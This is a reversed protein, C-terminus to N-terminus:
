FTGTLMRYKTQLVHWIHAAQGQGPQLTPSFVDFNARELAHLYRECAVASLLVSAAGSPLHKRLARAEDLHGKAVSAVALVVDRLGESCQGSYM